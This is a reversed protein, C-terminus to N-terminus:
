ADETRDIIRTTPSQHFTRHWEKEDIRLSSPLIADNLLTVNTAMDAIDSTSSHHLFQSIPPSQIQRNKLASSPINQPIFRPQRTLSVVEGGDILRNDM